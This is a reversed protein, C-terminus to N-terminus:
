ALPVSRVNGDNFKLKLLGGVVNGAIESDGDSARISWANDHVGPTGPVGVGYAAAGSFLEAVKPHLAGTSV